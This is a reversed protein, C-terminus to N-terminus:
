LPRPRLILFAPRGNRDSVTEAPDLAYGLVGAMKRLRENVGPTVERGDSWALFVNHPASLQKRLLEYDEPQPSEKLADGGVFIPLAGRSLLYVNDIMGWDIALIAQAKARQLAPPLSLIADTWIASPGNRVLQAYHQNIVALNSLCLVGTLAGLAPLAARRPLRGFAEAFVLAAWFVPMPWLLITHHASGGANRTFAMEGWAVAMVLVCFLVPRRVPSRLLLLSLIMALLYALPMLSRRPAGTRESLWVSARELMTSPDRSRGGADDAAIYGFLASGEATAILADWKGRLEKSSFAVHEGVSASSHQINYLLFPSAGTLFAAAAVMVTAPRVARWIERPFVILGAVAIGSLMWAFLAKDWMALGFCLFAAGLQVLSRSQHFRVLLWLAAATLLHQLAVPGWDFVTTLLYTPDTALLFCGALAARAGSVRMLLCGLLWVSWAGIVIAPVRLSYVSPKWRKFVPAYIWTKLTGLYNLLMLQYSRGFVKVARFDSPPNYLPSAFLAEDLQIGAQPVFALGLAIFIVCALLAGAATWGRM